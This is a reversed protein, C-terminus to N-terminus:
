EAEYLMKRTENLEANESLYQQLENAGGIHFGDIIVVPYTKVNPFKELLIERTFDEGLKLETFPIQRNRLLSKAKTCFTCNTKTYIFINPM